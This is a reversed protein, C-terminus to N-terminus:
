KKNKVRVSRWQVNMLFLAAFIGLFPLVQIFFRSNHVIILVLLLYLVSYISIVTRGFSPSRRIILGCIGFLFSIWSLLIVINAVIVSLYGSAPRLQWREIKLGLLLFSKNLQQFVFRNVQNAVLKLKASHKIYDFVRRKSLEERVWPDQSSETYRKFLDVRLEQYPIVGLEINIWRNMSISLTKHEAYNAIRQPLSVAIFCGYFVALIKLVALINGRSRRYLHFALVPLMVILYTDVIGKTLSCFGFFVGSLILFRYRERSDYLVLFILAPFLLALHLMEPWLAQVYFGIRPNFLFLGAAVAATKKGFKLLLCLYYISFAVVLFLILNLASVRRFFGSYVGLSELSEQAEGDVLISEGPPPPTHPDALLGYVGFAFPPWWEFHMFGPVIRKAKAAFSQDQHAIRIYEEEDGWIKHVPFAAILYVNLLLALLMLITFARHESTARKM